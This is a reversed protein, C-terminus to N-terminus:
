AAQRAIPSQPHDPVSAVQRSPLVGEIRGGTLLVVRDTLALLNPEKTAILLGVGEQRLAELCTHLRGLGAADLGLEPEDLVVFRPKGCIARALAVARRQRMSLAGADEGVQTELGDPMGALVEAVDAMRAARAVQDLSRDAFGAINQAISGALLMPTDPLYGIDRDLQTRQRITIPSGDVDVRGADPAIVGALMAALASKGAGPSGIIGISEGPEITLAIDTLAPVAQGPYRCTAGELVIRGSLASLGRTRSATTLPLEHYTTKLLLWSRRASLLGPSTLVARELASLARAAVLVAALMAGPALQDAVVLYAGSGMVLSIGAPKIQRAATGVLMERLGYKYARAVRGRNATEWSRAVGAASLGPGIWGAHRSITELWRGSATAGPATTMAPTRAMLLCMMMGALAMACALGLLPHLAFILACAAIAWPLELVHGLTGSALATSVVSIAHGSERITRGSTGNELGTRIMEEGLVHDLWLGTRLLVLGRVLDLALAAGLTGAVIVALVVLLDISGGPIVAELLQLAFVPVSLVLFSICASIASAVLLARRVQRLPRRTTM